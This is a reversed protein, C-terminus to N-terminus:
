EGAAEMNPYILIKGDRIVQHAAMPDFPHRRPGAVVRALQERTLPMTTQGALSKWEKDVWEGAIVYVPLETEGM